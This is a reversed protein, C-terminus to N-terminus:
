KNRRDGPKRKYLTKERSADLMNDSQSGIYLHDPNFCLSNPCRHNVQLPSELDFGLYLMAAVRHVLKNIGDVGIFGYIKNNPKTKATHCGTWLWCGNELILRKRLLREELTRYTFPM